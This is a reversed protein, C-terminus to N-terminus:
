TVLSANFPRGSKLVGYIIHVLKRMIAGIIVMKSKGNKKLREAFTKIIPNYRKAVIAPFYLACRMNANGTKCMRAKKNVSSGSKHQKPSVGVFAALQKANKFKEPQGIFALSKAITIDGIGAISDLLLSKSKLEKNTNIHQKIQKKIEQIEKDLFAIVMKIRIAIDESASELRNKEQQRISALDDLRRVLDTMVQIHKEPPIWQIPKASKCFKMIVIADLKDTKNRNGESVAFGKIRAPNVISVIHSKNHMYNALANGYIGTAELCIHAKSIGKSKLWKHLAEFGEKNNKYVKSKTKGGVLLAVDFKRKAIDIGVSPIM